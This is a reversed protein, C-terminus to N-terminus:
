IQVSPYSVSTAALFTGMGSSPKRSIGARYGVNLTENSTKSRQGLQSRLKECHQQGTPLPCTAKNVSATLIDTVAPCHNWITVM